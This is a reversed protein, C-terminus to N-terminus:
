YVKPDNGFNGAKFFRLFIQIYSIIFRLLKRLVSEKLTLIIIM